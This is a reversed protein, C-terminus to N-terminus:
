NKERETEKMQPKKPVKGFILFIKCYISNNLKKRSSKESFLKFSKVNIQVSIMSLKKIRGFKQFLFWIVKSDPATKGCKYTINKPKCDGKPCNLNKKGLARSQILM